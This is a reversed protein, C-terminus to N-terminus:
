LAQVTLAVNGGEDKSVQFGLLEALQGLSWYTHEVKSYDTIVIGDLQVFQSGILAKTSTKLCYGNGPFLPTGETGDAAYIWNPAMMVVAGSYGIAFQSTTGHLVAALDELRVYSPAGECDTLTYLPLAAEQGNVAAQTSVEALYVAPIVTVECQGTLTGFQCIVTAKGPAKAHLTGAADVEVVQPDTSFWTGPVLTTGAPAPTATLIHSVGESLTLATSSLSLSTAIKGAWPNGAYPDTPDWGRRGTQSPVAMGPKGLPGPETGDFVTVKTGRPCNDYIWKCDSLQLRVCGHSAPEGLDNYASVIMSGRDGKKAYTLSHFLCDGYFQTAYQTYVGGIMKLWNYRNTITFTGAPTAGLKPTGVSCIMAKQPVTYYGQEDLGYVTITCNVRDVMLYYPSGTNATRQNLTAPDSDAAAFASPALGACLSLALLLSLFKRKL